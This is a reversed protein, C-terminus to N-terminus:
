LKWFSTRRNNVLVERERTLSMGKEAFFIRWGERMQSGDRNWFHGVYRYIGGAEVWGKKRYMGYQGSKKLDGVTLDSIWNGYSLKYGDDIKM